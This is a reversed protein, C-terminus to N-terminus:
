VDDLQEVEVIEDAEEIEELQPTMALATAQAAVSLADEAMHGYTDVTTQISEHGLRVRIVALPVGQAILWSVHTHRLDHVRPRKDIAGADNADDLARSWIEHFSNQRIMSGRLNTYVLDNSGKGALLPKVSEAVMPSLSVLRRSMNTKPPGLEPPAGRIYKWSRAVRLTPVKAALDFDHVQLATGESFRLGTGALLTVFPRWHEGLFDDRLRQFEPYSLISMEVRESRGIKVRHCPNAVINGLEVQREMAAYLLGHRNRITKAAVTQANVWKTITDKSVADVPLPGLGSEAFRHAIKEYDKRTGKTIGSLHEIHDTLAQAVTPVGGGSPSGMRQRLVERAAAGGIRDVLGSFEGAAEGNDFTESVLKGDVRFMVRWRQGKKTTRQQIHAM